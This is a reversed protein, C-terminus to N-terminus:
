LLPTATRKGRMKRHRLSLGALSASVSTLTRANSVHAVDNKFSIRNRRFNLAAFGRLLMWGDVCADRAPKSRELPLREAKLFFHPARIRVALRSQNVRRRARALRIRRPEPRHQLRQARSRYPSLLQASVQRRCRTFRNRRRSIRPITIQAFGIRMIVVRAASNRMTGVRMIDIRRVRIATGVLCRFGCSGAFRASM